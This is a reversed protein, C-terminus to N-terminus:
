PPPNKERMLVFAMVLLVVMGIAVEWDWQFSVFIAQIVAVVAMTGLISLPIYIVWMSPGHESNMALVLGIIVGIVVLLILVITSM